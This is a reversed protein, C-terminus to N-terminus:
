QIILDDQIPKLTHSQLCYTYQKTEVVAKPTLVRDIYTEDGLETLYAAVFHSAHKVFQPVLSALAPVCM